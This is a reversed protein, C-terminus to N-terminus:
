NNTNFIFWYVLIAHDVFLPMCTVHMTYINIILPATPNLLPCHPNTSILPPLLFEYINVPTRLYQPLYRFTLSINRINAINLPTYSTM